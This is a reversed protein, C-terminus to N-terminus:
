LPVVEEVYFAFYNQYGKLAVKDGQKLLYAKNKSICIDSLFGTDYSVVLEAVCRSRRGPYRDISAVTSEIRQPTKEVVYYMVHPIAPNFSLYAFMALGLVAGVGNLWTQARFQPLGLKYGLFLFLIAIGLYTLVVLWFYKKYDATLLIGDISVLQPFLSPLVFLVIFIYFIPLILVFSLCALLYKWRGVSKVARQREAKYSESQSIKRAHLTIALILAVAAVWRLTLMIYYRNENETDRIFSPLSSSDFSDLNILVLAVLITGLVKIIPNIIKKM